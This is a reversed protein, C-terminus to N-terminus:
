ALIADQYKARIFELLTQANSSLSYAAPSAGKSETIQVKLSGHNHCTPTDYKAMCSDCSTICRHFGTMCPQCTYVGPCTTCLHVFSSPQNSWCLRCWSPITKGAFMESFSIRADEFERLFVLCYGLEWFGPSVRNHGTALITESLKYISM